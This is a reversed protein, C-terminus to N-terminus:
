RDDGEGEGRGLVSVFLMRSDVGLGMRLSHFCVGLGLAECVLM